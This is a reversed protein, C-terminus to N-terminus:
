STAADIAAPEGLVRCTDVLRNITAVVQSASRERGATFVTLREDNLVVNRGTSFVSLVAACRTPTLYATIAQSPADVIIADDFRPDGVVVDRGGVM